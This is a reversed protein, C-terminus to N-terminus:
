ATVSAVVKAIIDAAASIESAELTPHVLTMVATDRLVAANPLEKEGKSLGAKKFCNEQSINWCTGSMAVVGADNIKDIVDGVTVGSKLMEPKLFFYFKYNAHVCDEPTKFLRVAKLNALRDALIKANRARAASWAPLKRLGQLGLAAQMETMRMNTGFDELYWRFGKPHETNYVLDYDRGHDKFSWMKRWVKENNTTVAGGEGGTTIIKDQCFSWAGVDGISGVSKGKYKAGHAQACDEIVYLNLKRAVAMIADMDCPFGMHHVAIVAKTKPTALKEIESPLINQSNLDVDAVIPTAGRMVICSASAMFTRCTTIVEDGAGVGLGELALELATTGNSVAIAYKVGTFECMAKEFLINKDGTWRNIKGSAMVESVADIDDKEFHPWKKYNETIM